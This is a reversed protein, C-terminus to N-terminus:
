QLRLSAVASTRKLQGQRVVDVTAVGFCAFADVTDERPLNANSACAFRRLQRQPPIRVGVRNSRGHPLGCRRLTSGKSEKRIRSTRREEPQFPLVHRTAAFRVLSRQSIDGVARVNSRDDQSCSPSVPM